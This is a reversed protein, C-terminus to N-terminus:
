RQVFGYDMILHIVELLPVVQRSPCDEGDREDCVNEGGLSGGLLSDNPTPDALLSFVDNYDDFNLALSQPFAFSYSSTAENKPFLKGGRVTVQKDTFSM